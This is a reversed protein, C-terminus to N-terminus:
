IEVNQEVSSAEAYRAGFQGGDAPNVALATLTSPPLNKLQAADLKRVFTWRDPTRVFAFGTQLDVFVDFDKVSVRDVASGAPIPATASTAASTTAAVAALSTTLTLSAATAATLLRAKMFRIRQMDYSDRSALHSDRPEM